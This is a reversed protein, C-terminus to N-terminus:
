LDKSIEKKLQQNTQKNVSPNSSPNEGERRWAYQQKLLQLVSVRGSPPLATLSNRQPAGGCLFFATRSFRSRESRSQKSGTLMHSVASSRLATTFRRDWFKQSIFRTRWENVRYILGMGENEFTLIWINDNAAERRLILCGSLLLVSRTISHCSFLWHKSSARDDWLLVHKRWHEM